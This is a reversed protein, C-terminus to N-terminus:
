TRIVHRAQYFQSSQSKAVRVHRM